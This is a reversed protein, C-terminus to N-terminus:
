IQFQQESEPFKESELWDSQSLPFLTTNEKYSVSIFSL